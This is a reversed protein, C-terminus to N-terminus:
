VEIPLAPIKMWYTPRIHEGAMSYWDEGDWYATTFLEPNMEDEPSYVLVTDEISPMKDEVKTWPNKSQERNM